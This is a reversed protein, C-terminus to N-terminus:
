IIARNEYFYLETCCIFNLFNVFFYAVFPKFVPNKSNVFFLLHRFGTYLREGLSNIRTYVEPHDKLYTLQAIGAAMAVPNGSLTGAQYVPGLPAVVEMIEKKGGYAGVPMGGGIIKGFTSLDPTIGLLEQAGGLSLRFGTIVEDFILVTGERTM